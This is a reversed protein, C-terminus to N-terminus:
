VDYTPNPGINGYSGGKSNVGDVGFFADKKEATNLITVVASDAGSNYGWSVQYVSPIDCPVAYFSGTSNATTTVNCLALTSTSPDENLGFSYKCTTNCERTLNYVTWEPTAQRKDVMSPFTGLVVATEAQDPSVIVGDPVQALTYGFFAYYNPTQSVDTPVLTFSDSNADYGQNLSYRDTESCTAQQYDTKRASTTNTGEIRYSCKDPAKGDNENINYSYLCINVTDNCSRVFNELTWTEDRRNLFSPAAFGGSALVGLILYKSLM